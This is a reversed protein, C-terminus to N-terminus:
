DVKQRERATAGVGLADTQYSWSSEHETVAVVGAGAPGDPPQPLLGTSAALAEEAPQPPLGTSASLVPAPQPLGLAGTAGAVLAGGAEVPPHFLGTAGAEVEGPQAAGDEGTPSYLPSAVLIPPEAAAM